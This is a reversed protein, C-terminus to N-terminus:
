LPTWSPPAPRGTRCVDWKPKKSIRKPVTAQIELYCHLEHNLRKLKPTSPTAGLESFVPTKNILKVSNDQVPLDPLAPFVQRLLEEFEPDTVDFSTVTSIDCGNFVSQFAISTSAANNFLKEDEFYLAYEADTLTSM